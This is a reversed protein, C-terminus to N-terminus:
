LLVDQIPYDCLYGAILGRDRDGDPGGRTGCLGVYLVLLAPLDTYDSRAERSLVRM